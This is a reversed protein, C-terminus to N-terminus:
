VALSNQSHDPIAALNLCEGAFIYIYTGSTAVIAVQLQDCVSEAQTQMQSSEVLTM